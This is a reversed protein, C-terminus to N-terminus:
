FGWDEMMKKADESVEKRRKWGDSHDIASKSCGLMEAIEMSNKGERALRLVEENDVKKKRGATKAMEVKQNYKNKSFDIRNKLLKVFSSVTPNQLYQLKSDTGYRVIEAIIKDQQEVPLGAISDLWEKHMVFTIDESM